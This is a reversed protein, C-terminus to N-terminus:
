NYLDCQRLGGKWTQMIFIDREIELQKDDFKFTYFWDFEKKYLAHTNFYAEQKYKILSQKKTSM